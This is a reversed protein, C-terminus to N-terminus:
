DMDYFVHARNQRRNRLFSLLSIQHVEDIAIEIPKDGNMSAYPDGPGWQKRYIAKVKAIAQAENQAYVYRNAVFGAPVEGSDRALDSVETLLYYYPM